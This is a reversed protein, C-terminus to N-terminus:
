HKRIVTFFFVLGKPSNGATLFSCLQINQHIFFCLKDKLLSPVCSYRKIFLFASSLGRSITKKFHYWWSLSLLSLLQKSMLMGRTDRVSELSMLVTLFLSALFICIHVIFHIKLPKYDFKSRACNEYAKSLNIDGLSCSIQIRKYNNKFNSWQKAYYSLM